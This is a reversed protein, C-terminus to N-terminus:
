VASALCFGPPALGMQPQPLLIGSPRLAHRNPNHQWALHQLRASRQAGTICSRSIKALGQGEICHRALPSRLLCLYGVLYFIRGSLEKPLNALPVFLYAFLPFNTFGYCAEDYLADLNRVVKRGGHFYGKFYDYLAHNQIVYYGVLAVLVFSGIGVIGLAPPPLNFRGEFLFYLGALLIPLFTSPLYFSYYPM